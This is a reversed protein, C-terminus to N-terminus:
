PASHSAASSGSGGRHSPMRGCVRHHTCGLRHSELRQGCEAGGAQHLGDVNQTVVGDVVGARQLDAVARHGANPVAGAMLRWGTFSWAWYRQRAGADRTFTQWTM